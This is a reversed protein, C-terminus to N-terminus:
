HHKRERTPQVRSKGEKASNSEIQVQLQRYFTDEEVVKPNLKLQLWRLYDYSAKSLQDELRFFRRTGEEDRFEIMWFPQIHIKQGNYPIKM